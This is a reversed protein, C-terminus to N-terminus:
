MKFIFGCLLICSHKSFFSIYTAAGFELFHHFAADHQEKAVVLRGAVVGVVCVVGETLVRREQVVKTLHAIAQYADDVNVVVLFDKYAVVDVDLIDHPITRDVTHGVHCSLHAYGVACGHACELFYDVLSLGLPAGDVEQGGVTVVVHNLDHVQQANVGALLALGCRVLQAHCYDLHTAGLSGLFDLLQLTGADYAVVHVSCGHLQNLGAHALLVDSAM